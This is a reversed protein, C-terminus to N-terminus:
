SREKAYNERYPLRSPLLLHKQGDYFSKMAEGAVRQSELHTEIGGTINPHLFGEICELAERLLIKAEDESMTM